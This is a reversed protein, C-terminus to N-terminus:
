YGSRNKVIKRTLSTGDDFALRLIYVGQPLEGWELYTGNRSTLMEGSLSYLAARAQRNWYVGYRTSCIEIGQTKVYTIGTATGTVEDGLCGTASVTRLVYSDDERADTDTYSTETLNTLYSGNKYIIYGAADESKDWKLNGDVATFASVPAPPTVLPLPDFLGLSGDLQEDALNFVYEMNFINDVVTQDIYQSPSMHEPDETMAWSVRGSLDIPNGDMDMSGYEGLYISQTDSMKQWGEPCIHKDMYCNIFYAACTTKGWNRGLYSDSEGMNDADYVLRCGRIFLGLRWLRSQGTLQVSVSRPVTAFCNGPAVIYGSRLQKIMCDDVFAIGSDYIYDVTGEIYCDKLYSRSDTFFHVGDQNAKMNVHRLVARDSAVTFCEAQGGDPGATNQTTFNDGYFDLGDVYITSTEAADDYGMTHSLDHSIVTGDRSEGILSVVAGQPVTVQEKYLGNRVFILMRTGDAPADDVAEQVSNYDGSGDASVVKMFATQAVACTFPCAAFILVPAVVHRLTFINKM